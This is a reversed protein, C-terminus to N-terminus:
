GRALAGEQTERAFAAVVECFAAPEELPACHASQEFAHCRGQPATAAIWEALEWPWYPDRRSYAALVPLSLNRITARHDVRAQARVLALAWPLPTQWAVQELLPTIAQHEPLLSAALFDHQDAPWSDEMGEVYQALDQEALAWPFDETKTLRMPGNVLMVRAVRPNQRQLLSLSTTCGMSWGVLTVNSADLHELLNALDDALLDFTLRPLETLAKDSEGMGRQDYAIVRFQSRMRQIVQDFLRHSQKWGHVLVVTPGDGGTDAVRLRAGDPLVCYDRDPAMM